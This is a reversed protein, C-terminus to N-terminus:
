VDDSDGLFDIRYNGSKFHEHVRISNIVCVLRKIYGGEVPAQMQTVVWRPPASALVSTSSVVRTVISGVPLNIVERGHIVDGVKVPPKTRHLLRFEWDDNLAGVYWRYTSGYVVRGMFDDDVGKINVHLVDGSPVHTAEIKDGAQMDKPHISPYTM